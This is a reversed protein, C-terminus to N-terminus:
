AAVPAGPKAAIPQSAVNSKVTSASRNPIPKCGLTLRYMAWGKTYSRRPEAFSVQIQRVTGCQRGEVRSLTAVIVSTTVLIRAREPSIM